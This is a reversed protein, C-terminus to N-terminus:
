NGLKKAGRRGRFFDSLLKSAEDALLGGQYSFVHNYYGIDLQQRASVLSGSKPETAAFVVRKIRAHVLAGVCMTCPELTVYLTTNELRYNQLCHAAQRIAVVEAHATPDHSLIPQNYGEGIIHNDLVLVAGVPVEGLAAGQQALALARQMFVVDETSFPNDVILM